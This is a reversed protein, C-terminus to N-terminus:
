FGFLCPIHLCWAIKGRWIVNNQQESLNENMGEIKHYLPIMWDKSHHHDDDNNINYSSRQRQPRPQHWRKSQNSSPSYLCTLTIMKTMKMMMSSPSYLCTLTIMLKIVIMTMTMKIMVLSSSYLCTMMMMKTLMLAAANDDSLPTYFHGILTM